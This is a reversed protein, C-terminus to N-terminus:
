IIFCLLGAGVLFAAAVAVAQTSYFEVKTSRFSDDLQFCVFLFCVVVHSRSTVFLLRLSLLLPKQRESPSWM